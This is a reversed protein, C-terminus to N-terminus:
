YPLTCVCARALLNPLGCGCTTASISRTQEQEHLSHEAGGAFCAGLWCDVVVEWGGSVEAGVFAINRVLPPLVHRYLYLGDRQVGLKSSIDADIFAYDKRHGPM